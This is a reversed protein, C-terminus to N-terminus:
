NHTIAQLPSIPIRRRHDTLGCRRLHHRAPVNRPLYPRALHADDPTRGRHDPPTRERSRPLRRHSSHPTQDRRPPSSGTRRAFAFGTSKPSRSTPPRTTSAASSVRSRRPSSSPSSNRFGRLNKKAEDISDAHVVSVVASRTDSRCTRSCTGRSTCPAANSAFKRLIKRAAVILGAHEDRILLRVAVLEALLPHARACFRLTQGETRSCARRPDM